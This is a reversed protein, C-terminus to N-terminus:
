SSTDSPKMALAYLGVSQAGTWIDQSLVRIDGFIHEKWIGAGWGAEEEEEQDQHSSFELTDVLQDCTRDTNSACVCWPQALGIGAEKM